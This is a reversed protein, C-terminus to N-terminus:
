RSREKSRKWRLRDRCKASSALIGGGDKFSADSHVAHIFYWGRPAPEEPSCTGYDGCADCQCDIVIIAEGMLIPNSM